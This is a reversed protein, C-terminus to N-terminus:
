FDRDIPPTMPNDTSTADGKEGSDDFPLPRHTETAKPDKAQMAGDQKKDDAKKDQSSNSQSTESSM